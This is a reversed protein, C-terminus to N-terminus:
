PKVGAERAEEDLVLQEIYKSLDGKRTYKSRVFSEARDSLCVFIKGM